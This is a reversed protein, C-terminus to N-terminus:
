ELHDNGGTHRPALRQRDALIRQEISQLVAIEDEAAKMEEPAKRHIDYISYREGALEQAATMSIRGAGDLAEYDNFEIFQDTKVLWDAM